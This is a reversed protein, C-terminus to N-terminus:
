RAAAVTVTAKKALAVQEIATPRAFSAVSQVLLGTIAMAACAILFRIRLPNPTM